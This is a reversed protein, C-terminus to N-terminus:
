ACRPVRSRRSGLRAWRSGCTRCVGAPETRDALAPRGPRAPRPQQQGAVDRARARLDQHGRRGPRRRSRRRSDRQLEHWAIEADDIEGRLERAQEELETRIETLEETTWPDEGDRVPPLEFPGKAGGRRAHAVKTAAAKAPPSKAPAKAAAKARRSRPRQRPREAVAQGARDQHSDRGAQGGRDQGCDQSAGDQHPRDQHPAPGEQPARSHRYPAPGPAAKKPRRQKGRPEQGPTTARVIPPESWRVRGWGTGRACAPRGREHGQCPVSHRVILLTLGLLILGSKDRIWRLAGSPRERFQSLRGREPAGQGTQGCGAQRGAERLVLFACVPYSRPRPAPASPVLLAPVAAM